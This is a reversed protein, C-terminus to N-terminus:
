TEVLVSIRGDGVGEIRPLRSTTVTAAALWEAPYTHTVSVVRMGAARAAAVGAPSDEVVLGDDPQM